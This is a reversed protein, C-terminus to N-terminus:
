EAIHWASNLLEISHYFNISKNKCSARSTPVIVVTLFSLYVSAHYGECFSLNFNRSIPNTTLFDQLEPACPRLWELNVSRCSVLSGRKVTLWVLPGNCCRNKRTPCIKKSNWVECIMVKHPSSIVRPSGWFQHMQRQNADRNSPSYRCTQVIELKRYAEWHNYRATTTIRHHHLFSCNPNLTYPQLHLVSVSLSSVAQFLVENQKILVDIYGSFSNEKFM